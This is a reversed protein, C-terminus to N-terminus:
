NRFFSCCRLLGLPLLIVLEGKLRDVALFFWQMEMMTGPRLGVVFLWLNSGRRWLLKSFVGWYPQSRPLTPLLSTVYISVSMYSQKAVVCAVHEKVNDSYVSLVVFFFILWGGLCVLMSHQRCGCKSPGPPRRCAELM